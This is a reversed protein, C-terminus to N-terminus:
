ITCINWFINGSTRPVYSSFSLHLDGWVSNLLLHTDDDKLSGGTFYDQNQDTKLSQEIFDWEQECEIFTPGWGTGIDSFFM